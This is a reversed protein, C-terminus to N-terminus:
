RRLVHRTSGSSLSLRISLPRRWTPALTVHIGWSLQGQPAAAWAIGPAGSVLGLAALALMERRTLGSQDGHAALTTEM